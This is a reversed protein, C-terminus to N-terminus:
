PAALGSCTGIQIYARPPAVSVNSSVFSKQGLVITETAALGVQATALIAHEFISAMSQTPVIKYVNGDTDTVTGAQRNVTFKITYAKDDQCGGTMNACVVAKTAKCEVNEAFAPDALSTMGVVAILVLTRGSM